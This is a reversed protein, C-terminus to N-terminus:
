GRTSTSAAIAEISTAVPYRAAKWTPLGGLLRRVEFQNDRLLKTAKYSLGWYTSRCYAVIPRERSLLHLQRRMQELPINIAGPIHCAAFEDPTRVDIVILNKSQLERKLDRRSISAFNRYEHFHDALTMQAEASFQEAVASIAALMDVIAHGALDYRIQKGLRESTVLGVKKLIQLQRSTMVVSLGCSKALTEVNQPRQALQELLEIRTPHGVSKTIGAFAGFLKRKAAKSSGSPLPTM